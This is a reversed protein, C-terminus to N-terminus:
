LCMGRKRLVRLHRAISEGHQSDGASTGSARTCPCVREMRMTPKGRHPNGWPSKLLTPSNGQAGGMPYRGLRSDKFSDPFIAATAADLGDPHRVDAKARVPDFDVFWSKFIAQAIAELTGNMRRNLEIKDDLTALIHAIAKQEKLSPLLIRLRVLDTGTIGSVAVQRLITGLLYRGKPSNFLYYLFLSDAIKRSPRARIISSEFTTPENVKMVISCKGAGEAILSRRAFLLDGAKLSSKEIEAVTLEVRNMPIDYIRPHAFLEGMNVVKVGSGHFEKKKYVGNRTGNVLVDGFEVTQWEGAM